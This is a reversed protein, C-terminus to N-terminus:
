RRSRSIPPRRLAAGAFRNVAPPVPPAAQGRALADCQDAMAKWVRSYQEWEAPDTSSRAIEACQAALKRYRSASDMPSGEPDIRLKRAGSKSGRMNKERAQDWRGRDPVRREAADTREIQITARSRRVNAM